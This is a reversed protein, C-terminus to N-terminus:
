ANTNPQHKGWSDALMSLRHLYQAQFVSEHQKISSVSCCQRWSVKITMHFQMWVAEAFIFRVSTAIEPINEYKVCAAIKDVRANYFFYAVITVSFNSNNLWADRYSSTGREDIVVREDAASNISLWNQPWVDGRFADFVWCGGLWM